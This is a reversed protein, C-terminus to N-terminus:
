LAMGAQLFNLKYNIDTTVTLFELKELQSFLSLFFLSFSLSNTLSIQVQIWPKKQPRGAGTLLSLVSSLFDLQNIFHRCPSELIWFWDGL